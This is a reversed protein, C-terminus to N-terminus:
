SRQELAKALAIAHLRLDTASMDPLADGLAQSPSVAGSIVSDPERLLVPQRGLAGVAIRCRTTDSDVFVAASAKAFEGEQHTYKWYGWSATKGPRPVEIAALVDQPGLATRFAGTVFDEMPIRVEGVGPRHVLATAYLTTMVIVWDAAPDAHALSGGLTGRNRVARYAIRSAADRLWHGTADPVLGDEIEAHTIAAGYRVAGDTEVVQRLAEVGSVDVLGSPRVLRLNLMPGLSQGGSVLKIGDHGLAAQADGIEHAPAYSFAVSKM